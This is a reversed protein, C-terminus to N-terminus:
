GKWHFALWLAGHSTSILRHPTNSPIYLYDGAKLHITEQDMELIADGRLLVVWEEREDCFDKPKDLKASVIRVVEIGGKKFLTDM